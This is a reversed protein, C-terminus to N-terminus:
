SRGADFAATVLEAVRPAPAAGLAGRVGALKKGWWVERCWETAEPLALARLEDLTM